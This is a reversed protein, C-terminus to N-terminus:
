DVVADNESRNYQLVVFSVSRDYSFCAYLPLSLIFSVCLLSFSLSSSDEV